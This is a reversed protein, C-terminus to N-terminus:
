VLGYLLGKGPISRMRVRVHFHRVARLLMASFKVGRTADRRREKLELPGRTRGYGCCHLAIRHLVVRNSAFPEFKEGGRVLLVFCM